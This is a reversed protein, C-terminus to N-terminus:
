DDTLSSFESWGQHRAQHDAQIKAREFKRVGSPTLVSPIEGNKAWRSVTQRSVEWLEAVAKLPMYKRETAEM